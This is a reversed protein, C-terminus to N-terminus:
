QTKSQAAYSDNFMEDQNAKGYVFDSDYVYNQSETRRKDVEDRLNTWVNSIYEKYSDRTIFNHSGRGEITVIDSKFQAESTFSTM